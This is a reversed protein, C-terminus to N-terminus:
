RPAFSVYQLKNLLVSLYILVCVSAKLFKSCQIQTQFVIPAFYITLGQMLVPDM